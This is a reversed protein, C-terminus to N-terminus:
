KLFTSVNNTTGGATMNIVTSNAPYLNVGQFRFRNPYASDAAILQYYGNNTFAGPISSNTIYQIEM